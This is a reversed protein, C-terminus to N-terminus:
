STRVRRMQRNVGTVDMRMKLLQSSVYYESLIQEEPIRRLKLSVLAVRPLLLTASLWNAEEEQTSDYTNLLLLGSEDVDVRAPKHEIILHSIEHMLSNSQRRESQSSNLIILSIGNLCITSADWEDARESLLIRLDGKSLGPVDRPTWVRICMEEALSWPNLPEFPKLGM